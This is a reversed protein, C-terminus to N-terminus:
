GEAGTSAASQTPLAPCLTRPPDRALLCCHRHALAAPLKSTGRCLRNDRENAPCGTRASVSRASEDRQGDVILLLGRATGTRTCCRMSAPQIEFLCMFLDNDLANVVAAAGASISDTTRRGIDTNDHPHGHRRTGTAHGHERADHNLSNQTPTHESHLHPPTRCNGIFKVHICGDITDHQTATPSTTSSSFPWCTM